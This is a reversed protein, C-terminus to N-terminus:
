CEPGWWVSMIKEVYALDTKTRVELSSFLDDVEVFDIRNGLRNGEKIVKPDYKTVLARLLGSVLRLEAKIKEVQKGDAEFRIVNFYGYRIHKMPYALRSKGLEKLELNVAGSDEVVQKVKEVLPKAEDDSLTGPLIFLLEYNQM